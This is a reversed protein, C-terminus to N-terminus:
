VRRENLIRALIAISRRIKDPSFPGWSGLPRDAQAKRKRATM